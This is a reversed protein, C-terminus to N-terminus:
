RRTARLATRRLRLCSYAKVRSVSAKATRSRGGSPPRADGANVLGDVIAETYVDYGRLSMHICDERWLPYLVFYRLPSWSDVDPNGPQGQLAGAVYYLFGWSDGIISFSNHTARMAQGHSPFLQQIARCYDGARVVAEAALVPATPIFGVGGLALALIRM